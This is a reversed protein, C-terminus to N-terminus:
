YIMVNVPFKLTFNQKFCLNKFDVAAHMNDTLCDLKHYLLWTLSSLKEFKGTVMKREALCQSRSKFNQTLQAPIALVDKVHKYQHQDGFVAM